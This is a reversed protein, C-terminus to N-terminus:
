DIFKLTVKRLEDKEILQNGNRDYLIALYIETVETDKLSEYRGDVYLSNIGYHVRLLNGKNLVLKVQKNEENEYFLYHHGNKNLFLHQYGEESSASLGSGPRFCALDTTKMGVKIKDQASKEQFAAVQIAHRHEMDLDYREVLFQFGFYKKRVTVETEGASLIVVASEQHFIFGNETDM